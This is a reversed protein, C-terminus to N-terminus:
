LARVPASIEPSSVPDLSATTKILEDRVPEPMNEQIDRKFQEIEHAAPPNDHDSMRDRIRGLTDVRFGQLAELRTVRDTVAEREELYQEYAPEDGRWEIAAAHADSVREGRENWVQGRADRFVRSGDPLQAARSVTQELQAQAEELAAQAKAIARDTADEADGLLGMTDNYLRAYAANSALLTQLRAFSENRRREGEGTHEARRKEHDEASLFRAAKGNSIGSVEAAFDREDERRELERKAEKFIGRLDHTDYSM